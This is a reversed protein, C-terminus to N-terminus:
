SRCETLISKGMLLGSCAAAVLARSSELVLKTNGTFGGPKMKHSDPVFCDSLWIDANEVSRLCAKEKIAATKFGRFSKEKLDFPCFSLFRANLIYFYLAEPHMCTRAAPSICLNCFRSFM